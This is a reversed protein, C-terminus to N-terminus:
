IQLKTTAENASLTNYLIQENKMITLNQMCANYPHIYYLSSFLETFPLVHIAYAYLILVRHEWGM